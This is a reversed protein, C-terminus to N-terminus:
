RIGWKISKKPNEDIKTSLRKMFDRVHLLASAAQYEDYDGRSHMVPNRYLDKFARLQGLAGEYFELASARAPGVKRNAIKEVSKDIEMMIPQWQAFELPRDKPLRVKREKALAHLGREAVRMLHFICATDLELAYCEVAHEVDEKSSPFKAWVDAWEKSVNDHITAKTTTVFVFRHRGLEGEIAESLVRAQNKLEFWRLGLKLARLFLDCRHVSGALEILECQRRAEEVNPRHYGNIHKPWVEGDGDKGALEQTARLYSIVAALKCFDYSKM